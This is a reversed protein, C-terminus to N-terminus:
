MPHMGLTSKWRWQVRCRFRVYRNGTEFDIQRYVLRSVIFWIQVEAGGVFGKKM